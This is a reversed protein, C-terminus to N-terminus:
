LIMITFCSLFKLLNPFITNQFRFEQNFLTLIQYHNLIGCKLTIAKIKEFNM